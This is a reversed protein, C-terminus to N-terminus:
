LSWLQGPLQGQFTLDQSSEDRETEAQKHRQDGKYSMSM